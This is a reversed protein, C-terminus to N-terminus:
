RPHRRRRRREDDHMADNRHLWCLGSRHTTLNCCRRRGSRVETFPVLIFAHCQESM